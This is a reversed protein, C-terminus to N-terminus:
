GAKSVGCAAGQRMSLICQRIFPLVACNGGSPKLVAAAAAFCLRRQLFARDYVWYSRRKKSLLKCKECAADASLIIRNQRFYNYLLDMVSQLSDVFFDSCFM